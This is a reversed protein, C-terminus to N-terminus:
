KKGRQVQVLPITSERIAAILTKGSSQIYDYDVESESTQINAFSLNSPISLDSDASGPDGLPPVM